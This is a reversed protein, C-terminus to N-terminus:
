GPATSYPSALMLLQKLLQPKTIEGTGISTDDWQLRQQLEVTDASDEDSLVHVLAGGEQRLYQAPARTFWQLM